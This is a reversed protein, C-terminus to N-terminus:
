FSGRVGFRFQRPEQYFTAHGFNPNVLEPTLPEGTSARVKGPLDSRTGKPVPRVDSSTYREDRGLAGHVDLLNFVDLVLAVTVGSEFRWSWGVHTGVNASWPLREGAGSPLIFVSDPGYLPHAGRFSTPGGSRLQFSVGIQATAERTVEFDKAGYVKFSHRRDGPLDGNANVLLSKLDFSTGAHPELRGTYPQYYGSVNGRLWSLTYSTQALWGDGFSKIFYLTGADYDRRAEPFSKAIGRGPNGIFYTAGEDGSMDEIVTNLWRRVYSVGIRGSRFLEYEAGAGIESVSQPRLDPDVMPKGAFAPVNGRDPIGSGLAGGQAPYTLLSATGGPQPRRRASTSPAMRSALDLPVSEAYRGYSVFLKTRGTQLPDVVLGIRPSVQNPASLVLKGGDDIIFQNDYRVGINATIGDGIAWSDQIFGGVSIGHTRAVHRDLYVARDPSTLYGTSTVTHTQDSSSESSSEGGSIGESAWSTAWELESGFKMVHRGAARALITVVSKLAYTDLVHVRIAGPGGTRYQPVPCIAGRTTGAPECASVQEFDNIGRVSPRRYNIAPVGAYGVGSGVGFGDAGLTSGRQHHWGLTMDLIKSKDDSTSTWKLVTDYASSRREHALAGYTGTLNYEGVASETLGTDPNVSYDGGGGSETPTAALTFSLKNRPDIRWDLKLFLQYSRFSAHYRRRAEIVESPAHEAGPASKYISRDLNYIARSLGFGAYYWLVDKSIPGSRDFGLDYINALSRRTQIATGAFYPYERDGELAGPTWNAWISAHNENSGSKTVM